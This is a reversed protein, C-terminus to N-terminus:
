FIEQALTKTLELEEPFRRTHLIDQIFFTQHERTERLGILSLALRPYARWSPFGWTALRSDGILIDIDFRRPLPSESILWAPVECCFYQKLFTCIYLFEQRMASSMEFTNFSEENIDSAWERLIMAIDVFRSFLYGQNSKHGIMHLLNHVFSVGRELKHYSNVALLKPTHVVVRQQPALGAFIKCDYHIDFEILNKRLTFVGRGADPDVIKYGIGKMANALPIREDATIEFDVDYFQRFGFDGYLDDVLMVGKWIVAKVEAADLLKLVRATEQFILANAAYTSLYDNMLRSTANENEIGEILGRTYLNAALFSSVRHTRLNAILLNWDRRSLLNLSRVLEKQASTEKSLLLRMVLLINESSRSAM